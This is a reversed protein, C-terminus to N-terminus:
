RQKNGLQHASIFLWVGLLCALASGLLIAQKAILLYSPTDFALNAFFLSMTFGIGSLCGTALLVQGSVASPLVALRLAIALRAALFVGLGKGLALGLIIGLATPHTFTSLSVGSFHVGGNVFVFLPIILFSVWPHIRRELQEGVSTAGRGQRMPILLGVLIGAVTAHVGSKLIFFWLFLGLTLYFFLTRIGLRNGALMLLALGAAYGLADWTIGQTYAVAIIIVAVIDDIISFAVLLVKAAVPVRAGLLATIGLAFAIDTTTSIPWGLLGIPDHQNAAYFLAIPLLIGGLACAVPLALQRPDALHGTLCERKIELSLLMFFIAMLGDNVWLILPKKLNFEGLHLTLPWHILAEYQVAWASNAAILALSLALLLSVGALTECQIFHELTAAKKTM